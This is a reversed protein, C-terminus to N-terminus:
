AAKKSLMAIGSTILKAWDIEKVKAEILHPLDARELFSIAIPVLMAVIGGQAAAQKAIVAELNTEIRQIADAISQTTPQVTPTAPVTPTDNMPKTGQTTQCIPLATTAGALRRPLNATTSGPKKIEAEWDAPREYLGMVTETAAQLSTTKCTQVWARNEPGDAALEKCAFRVQTEADSWPKGRAAAYAELDRRRSGTHQWLGIGGKSTGPMEVAAPNAGSEQLTQGWLAARHIPQGGILQAVLGDFQKVLAALRDDQATM